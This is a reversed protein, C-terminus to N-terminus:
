LIDCRWSFKSEQHRLRFRQVTAASSLVLSISMAVYTLTSGTLAMALIATVGACAALAYSLTDRFSKRSFTTKAAVMTSMDVDAMSMSAETMEISIPM